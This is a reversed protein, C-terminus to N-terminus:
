SIQELYADIVAVAEPEDLFPVHGRDPVEAFFMDPQRRCMEAATEASLINSNAGRILATPFGKLADFLPWIDPLAGDAAQEMISQRLLPDYRLAVGSETEAYLARAHRLYTEHPVNAFDPAMAHAMKHAADEHDRYEPVVGLYGFIHALGAPEVVPGIDNFIVGQLRDPHGMALGMAILGGRSTGLITVNALGLHDLLELVDQGERITNYNHYDPDHDSQGRGRLDLRIIRAKDAFQDVVPEFDAMNRSLGPLCLVPHGSGRDDYALKLGDTTTFFQTM